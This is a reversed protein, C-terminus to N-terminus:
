STLLARVLGYAVVSVGGKRRPTQLVTVYFVPNVCRM